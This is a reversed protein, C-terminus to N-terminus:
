RTLNFEKTTRIELTNDLNLMIEVPDITEVMNIELGMERLRSIILTFDQTQFFDVLDGVTIGYWGYTGVARLLDVNKGDDAFWGHTSVATLDTSM